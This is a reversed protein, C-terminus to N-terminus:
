QNLFRQTVLEAEKCSIELLDNVLVYDFLAEFSLEHSAKDIRKKLAEPSETKRQTLREILLEKSPPKIFITLCRERFKRKLTLAGQVDIDFIIHKGSNWIRDIESMLTGYYQDQYVMEYEAFAEDAILQKFKETTIFFYDMGEIEHPRKERTTASVSFDIFDFKQLLHKVITTKGAGSPATVVILKGEFEM